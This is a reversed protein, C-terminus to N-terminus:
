STLTVSLLIQAAADKMRTDRFDLSFEGNRATKWVFDRGYELGCRGLINAVRMLAEVTPYNANLGGGGGEANNIERSHEERRSFHAVKAVIVCRTAEM